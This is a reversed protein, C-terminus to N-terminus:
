KDSQRSWAGAHSERANKSVFAGRGHRKIRLPCSSHCHRVVAPHECGCGQYDREYASGAQEVVEAQTIVRKDDKPRNKIRWAQLGAIAIDKPLGAKKLQVALHFCAVRQCETVGLRLMEQACPPLGFTGTAVSAIPSRGPIAADMETLENIEIIDDLLSDPIRQISELFAWQDSDPEGPNAKDVFVARGRPVLAGFLPANIFNGFSTDGELRDQKPFIEANLSGIEVLIHQAVRRAKAALVGDKKFFMWVHYGKSKSREIYTPIGYSKAAALFEMPPNLDNEDFDVALARTRDKILLYVGYPQQGRLHRLIVEDNVPQKVQRVRGTEPEYTGYVDEIGSFCSRFLAVKQRTTRITGAHVM